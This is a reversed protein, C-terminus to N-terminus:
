TYQQLFIPLIIKLFVWKAFLNFVSLKFIGFGNMRACKQRARCLLTMVQLLESHTSIFFAFPCHCGHLGTDSQKEVDSTFCM